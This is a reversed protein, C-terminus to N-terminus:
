RLMSTHCGSSSFHSIAGYSIAVAFYSKPIRATGSAKNQWFHSSSPCLVSVDEGIGGSFWGPAIEGVVTKSSPMNLLFSPMIKISKSVSFREKAGIPLYCLTMRALPSM